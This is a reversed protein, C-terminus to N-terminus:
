RRGQNVDVVVRTRDTVKLLMLVPLLVLLLQMLVILM